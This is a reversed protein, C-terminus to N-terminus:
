VLITRVRSLKSLRSRLEDNPLLSPNPFSIHRTTPSIDEADVNVNSSETRGVSISLEHILDHMRFFLFPYDVRVFDFFSRSWLEELYRRGIEELEQNNGSSQIFGNSMWLQILEFNDFEHNKRKLTLHGTSRVRRWLARTEFEDVVDEADYCFDKLKSLWIRVAEEKTQKQEADALVKQIMELTNKLKERDDKVGWVLQIEEFALSALKQVIPGLTSSVVETM